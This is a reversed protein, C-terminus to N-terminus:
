QVGAALVVQIYTTMELLGAISMKDAKSHLCQMTAFIVRIAQSSLVEWSLSFM